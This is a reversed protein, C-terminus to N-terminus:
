VLVFYLTLLTLIFVVPTIILGIKLFYWYSINLKKKKLIRKWMLGALAGILTLNAGLNSAAIVAYAAGYFSADPAIFQDSVLINSYLITAPQNNIINVLLFGITGNFFISSGLGGSIDSLYAALSDVAEIIKLNAVLIFFALIFPLIQWPMKKVTKQFSGLRFILDKIIFVAAFATTVEWIELGIHQSFALIGLMILTLVSSISADNWSTVEYASELKQGFKATIDKKFFLYLFILNAAAAVLSPLWMVQTYELFGLGISNGIIINTPNGIYLFMSLTNAGFFEAFLLPVVNLHAHKGLYFIIPTLTLIVIDNSTFVTLISSFLYFFVFLTLGNGKSLLVIRYALFDFIGTIDLSVSVYAVTFFIVIIEWPRLRGDGELGLRITEFDILQLIILLMISIISGNVMDIKLKGIRFPFVAATISFLVALITLTLEM